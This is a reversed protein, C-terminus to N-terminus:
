ARVQRGLPTFLLPTILRRCNWNVWTIEQSELSVAALGHDERLKFERSSFSVLSAFRPHLLPNEKVNEQQTIISVFYRDSLKM